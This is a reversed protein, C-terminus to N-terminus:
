QCRNIELMSIGCVRTDPVPIENTGKANVEVWHTLFKKFDDTTLSALYSEFIPVDVTYSSNVAVIVRKGSALKIFAGSGSDGNCIAMNQDYVVISNRDNGPQGPTKSIKPEATRFVEDNGGSQPFATCGYGTLTIMHGLKIPSPDKIVTEYTVKPIPDIYCLAYDASNGPQYGVSHICIGSYSAGSLAFKVKKGDGVCHAALLLARPGIFTASCREADKGPNQLPDPYLSAPWDNSDAKTGGVVTSFDRSQKLDPVSRLMIDDQNQIVKRPEAFASSTSLCFAVLFSAVANAIPFDLKCSTAFFPASNVGGSTVGHQEIGHCMWGEM